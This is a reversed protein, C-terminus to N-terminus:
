IISLAQLLVLFCVLKQALDFLSFVIREPPKEGLFVEELEFDDDLAQALIALFWTAEFYGYFWLITM